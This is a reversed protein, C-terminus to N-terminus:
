HMSQRWMGFMWDPDQPRLSCRLEGQKKPDPSMCLHSYRKQPGAPAKVIGQSNVLSLPKGRGYKGFCIGFEDTDTPTRVLHGCSQLPGGMRSDMNGRATVQPLIPCINWVSHSWQRLLMKNSFPLQPSNASVKHLCFHRLNM